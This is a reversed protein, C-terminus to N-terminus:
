MNWHLTDSLGYRLDWGQPAWSPIDSLKIKTQKEPYLGDVVTTADPGNAPQLDM